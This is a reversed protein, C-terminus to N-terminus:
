NSLYGFDQALGHFLEYQSKAYDTMDVDGITSISGRRAALDLWKEDTAVKGLVEHWKAVVDEPLNKPGYLASWGAIQGAKEYGLEAATAVEPLDDMRKPAFVMLAKMDGSQIHPMLSAAAMAVFDVHGGLLATALEGGGKYPVLTAATLPDLDNDALLAQTTFGDIATAGSAAYTMAGNSDKIAAVLEEVSNYPADGRVALIMPTAELAGLFTYADWEVANGPTVAPSLAMGVRALLLTYGDAEGESVSRAGNMGGAGPKNMVTVPQGLFPQATEALARGALDSAGGPGYPVVLTVAQDPYDQAAAPGTAAIVALAITGLLKKM